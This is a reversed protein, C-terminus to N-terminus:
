FGDVDNARSGMLPPTPTQYNPNSHPKRQRYNESMSTRLEELGIGKQVDQQFYKVMAGQCPYQRMLHILDNETAQRPEQQQQQNETSM